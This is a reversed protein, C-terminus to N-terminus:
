IEIMGEQNLICKKDNTNSISKLSLLKEQM